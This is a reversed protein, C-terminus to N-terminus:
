HWLIPHNCSRQYNWSIDEQPISTPPTSELAVAVVHQIPAGKLCCLRLYDEESITARSRRNCRSMSAQRFVTPFFSQLSPFVSAMSACDGPRGDRYMEHIYEAAVQLETMENEFHIRREQLLLQLKEREAALQRHQRKKFEQLRSQRALFNNQRAKFKTARQQDRAERVTAEQAKSSKCDNVIRRAYLLEELRRTAEMRRMEHTAFDALQRQREIIEQNMRRFNNVRLRHQFGTSPYENSEREVDVGLSKAACRRGAKTTALDDVKRTSNWQAPTSRLGTSLKQQAQVRSFAVFDLHLLYLSRCVITVFGNYYSKVLNLRDVSETEKVASLAEAAWQHRLVLVIPAPYLGIDNDDHEVATVAREVTPPSTGQKVVDASM